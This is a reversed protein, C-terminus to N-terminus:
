KTIQMRSNHQSIVYSAASLVIPRTDHNLSKKRGIKNPLEVVGVFTPRSQREDSMGKKSQKTFPAVYTITLAQITRTVTAYIDVSGKSRHVSFLISYRTEQTFNLMIVAFRILQFSQFQYHNTKTLEQLYLTSNLLKQAILCLTYVLYVPRTEQM